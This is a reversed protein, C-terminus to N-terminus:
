PAAPGRRLALTYVDFSAGAATNGALHYVPLYYTDGTSAVVPVYVITASSVVAGNTPVAGGSVQVLGAGNAVATLADKIGIAPALPSFSQDVIRVECGTLAGGATYTLTAGAGAVQYPGSNSYTAFGVTSIKQADTTVGTPRLGADLHHAALFARAARSPDANGLVPLQPIPGVLRLALQYGYSRAKLSLTYPLHDITVTGSVGDVTDTTQQLSFGYGAITALASGGQQVPGGLIPLGGDPLSPGGGSFQLLVGPALPKTGSLPSDPGANAPAPLPYSPVIVPTGLTPTATPTATLAGHVAAVSNGGPTGTASPVEALQTRAATPSPVPTQSPAPPATPLSPSATAPAVPTDTAQAPPATATDRPVAIATATPRPTSTPIPRATPRPTPPTTPPVATATPRPLTPTATPHAANPLTAPQTATAAPRQTASPPPVPSLKTATPPVTATSLPAATASPRPASTATPPIATASPPAPTAPVPRSTATAQPLATASPSLKIDVIAVQTGDSATPQPTSVVSPTSTSPTDPTATNTGGATATPLAQTPQSDPATASPAPGPQTPQGVPATAPPIPTATGTPAALPHGGPHGTGTGAAPPPLNQATTPASGLPGTPTVLQRDPVGNDGPQAGAGSPQTGPPAITPPVTSQPTATDTQHLSVNGGPRSGGHDHLDNYGFLLAVAAASALAMSLGARYARSMGASSRAASPQVAPTSLVPFPRVNDAYRELLEAKLRARFEPPAPMPVLTQQLAAALALLPDRPEGEQQPHSEDFLRDIGESLAESEDRM